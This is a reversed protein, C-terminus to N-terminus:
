HAVLVSYDFHLPQFMERNTLNSLVLGDYMQRCQLHNCFFVANYVSPCFTVCVALSQEFCLLNFSYNVWFDLNASVTRIRLDDFVLKMM